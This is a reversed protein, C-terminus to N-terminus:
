FSSIDPEKELIQYRWAPASGEAAFEQEHTKKWSYHTYPPFFSDAVGEYAVSTLYLRHAYPLTLGYIEGGGIVMLEKEENERAIQLALELRDVVILSPTDAVGKRSLVMNTRGPLPKGISAYTKAGMLIFHGNTIQKFNKLDAPLHWLLRNHLGIERHPGIAAVLSIKM